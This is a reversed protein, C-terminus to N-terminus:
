PSQHIPTIVKYRKKHFKRRSKQLPKLIVLNSFLLVFVSVLALPVSMMMMMYMTTLLSIVSTMLDPISETALEILSQASRAHRGLSVGDMESYGFEQRLAHGFLKEQLACFKRSRMRSKFM